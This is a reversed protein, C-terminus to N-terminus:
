GDNTWRGDQTWRGGGVLEKILFCVWCIVIVIVISSVIIGDTM